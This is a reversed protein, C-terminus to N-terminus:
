SKTLYFVDQRFVLHKQSVCIFLTFLTVKERFCQERTEADLQEANIRRADEVDNTQKNFIGQVTRYNGNAMAERITFVIADKDVNEHRNLWKQFWGVIERWHLIIFTIVKTIVFTAVGALILTTLM